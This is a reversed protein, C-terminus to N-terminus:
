LVTRFPNAAPPQTREVTVSASPISTDTPTVTLTVTARGGATTVTTCRQHSFPQAHTTCGVRGALQTWPISFLDNVAAELVVTRDVVAATDTSRRAVAFTLAGIASMSIGFLAIAVLVEVLSFGGRTRRGIGAVCGPFRRLGKSGTERIM